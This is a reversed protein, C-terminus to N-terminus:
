NTHHLAGGHNVLTNTNTDAVSLLPSTLGALYVRAGDPGYITNHAGSQHETKAIVDETVACVVHWHPWELSPVYLIRGDPSIAMRDCGGDYTKEWAKKETI